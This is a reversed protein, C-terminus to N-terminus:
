RGNRYAKVESVIDSESMGLGSQLRDGFDFLEKWRSKREIYMRAAERIVESRSRSEEKAIRDLQKLLDKQFSINVTDVSM